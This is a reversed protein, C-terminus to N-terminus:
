FRLNPLPLIPQYSLQFGSMRHDPLIGLNLDFIDPLITMVAMQKIQHDSEMLSYDVYRLLILDLITFNDVVLEM